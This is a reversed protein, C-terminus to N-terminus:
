FIGPSDQSWTLTITQSIFLYVKKPMREIKPNSAYANPAQDLIKCRGYALSIRVTPKNKRAMPIDANIHNM